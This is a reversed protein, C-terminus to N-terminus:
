ASCAVAPGQNLVDAGLEARPFRATAGGGLSPSPEFLNALPAEDDETQKTVQQEKEAQSKGIDVPIIRIHVNSPNCSAPLRNQPVAQKREYDEWHQRVQGAQQGHQSFLLPEFRTQIQIHQQIRYANEEDPSDQEEVSYSIKIVLRRPQVGGIVSM